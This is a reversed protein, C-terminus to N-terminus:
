HGEDEWSDMISNAEKETYIEGNKLDEEADIFLQVFENMTMPSPDVPNFGPKEKLKPASYHQLAEKLLFLSKDDAEDIYKHLEKRIDSSKMAVFKKYCIYCKKRPVIGNAEIGIL